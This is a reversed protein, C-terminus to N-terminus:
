RLFRVFAAIKPTVEDVDTGIERVMDEHTNGPVIAFFARDGTRGALLQEAELHDHMCGPYDQEGVIFYTTLM